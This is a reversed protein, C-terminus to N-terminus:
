ILCFYLYTKLALSTIFPDMRSSDGNIKGKIEINMMREGKKTTEKISSKFRDGSFDFSSSGGSYSSSSSSDGSVLNYFWYLGGLVLIFAFFEGDAYIYNSLLM